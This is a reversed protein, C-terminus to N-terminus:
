WDMGVVVDFSGLSVPMLDIPFSYSTLELRCERLVHTAEVKKGDALEILYKAELPTPVRDLLQSFGLSIFSKDAGSDFLVTAYRNDLLFTGTVTDPDQRAESSGIVFARANRGGGGNNGNGVREEWGRGAEVQPM